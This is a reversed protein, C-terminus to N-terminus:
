MMSWLKSEPITSAHLYVQIASSYSIELHYIHLNHFVYVLKRGLQKLPDKCHEVELIAFSSHEDTPPDM